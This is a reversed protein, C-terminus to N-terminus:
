TKLFLPNQSLKVSYRGFEFYLNGTLNINVYLINRTKSEVPLFASKM